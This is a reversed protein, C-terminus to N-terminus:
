QVIIRMQGVVTAGRGDKATIHARYIGSTARLVVQAVIRTPSTHVYKVKSRAPLGTIVLAEEPPPLGGDPDFMGVVFSYTQGAKVTLDSIPDLAPTTNGVDITIPMSVSTTNSDRDTVTYTVYSTSRVGGPFVTITAAVEGPFEDIRLETGHPLGVVTMDLEDPACGTVKDRAAIVFSVVVDQQADIQQSSATTFLPAETTCVDAWSLAPILIIGVGMAVLM